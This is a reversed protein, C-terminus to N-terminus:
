GVYGGGSPVRPVSEHVRLMCAAWAVAVWLALDAVFTVAGPDFLLQGLYARGSWAFPNLLYGLTAGLLVTPQLVLPDIAPRLANLVGPLALALLATVLLTRLVVSVTVQGNPLAVAAACLSLVLGGVATVLVTRVLARVDLPM